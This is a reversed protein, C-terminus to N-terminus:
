RRIEILLVWANLVSTLFVLVFAVALLLLGAPLGLLVLVAAVIAVAIPLLGVVARGIIGERSVDDGGGHDRVVRIAADIAFGLSPLAFLLLVIGFWTPDLHPVLAFVSAIVVYTLSGITAIARAPLSRVGVITEVNVSMAVIILGVLAASAGAAATFFPVWSDLDLAGADV